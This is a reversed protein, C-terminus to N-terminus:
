ANTNTVSPLTKGIGQKVVCAKEFSTISIQIQIVAPLRFASVMISINNNVLIRKGVTDFSNGLVNVTFTVLLNARSM